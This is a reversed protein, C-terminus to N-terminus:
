VCCADTLDVFFVRKLCACFGMHCFCLLLFITGIENRWHFLPFQAFDVLQMLFRQLLTSFSVALPVGLIAFVVLAAIVIGTPPGDNGYEVHSAIYSIVLMSIFCLSMLINSLGWTFGAGWKRCLKEMLLSTVGLFVSNLMLGFSGMRVGDSYSQGENPEGHYIERGM